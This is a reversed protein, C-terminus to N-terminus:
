KLQTQCNILEQAITAEISFNNVLGQSLANDPKDILREAPQYPAAIIVGLKAPRESPAPQSKVYSIKKPLKNKSNVTLNSCYKSLAHVSINPFKSGPNLYSSSKNQNKKQKDINSERFFRGFSPLASSFTRLRLPTTNEM